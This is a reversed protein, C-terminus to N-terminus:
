EEQIGTGTDNADFGGNDILEKLKPTVFRSLNDELWGGAEDIVEDYDDFTKLFPGIEKGLNELNKYLVEEMKKWNQETM